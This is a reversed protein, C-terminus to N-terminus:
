QWINWAKEAQLELMKEGNQILAYQAKGQKLFATESPNYILDYLLHKPTIGDYPISPSANTNPHTGVPTCNIIIRHDAIIDKTLAQYTFNGAIDTTRSVHNYPIALQNLVFEIALSAGGTGLILAKDHHERLLPELSTKFGYADTNYGILMGKDTVKITNVAGISLAERDLEDLYPIIAQKYPITVNLGGLNSIKHIVEPFETISELDFNEYHFPLGLVKFKTNFYSKSFSYDIHKGVLGFKRM